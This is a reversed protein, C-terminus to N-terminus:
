GCSREPPRLLRVVAFVVLAYTLGLLVDIIYHHGLYVAAFPMAVAYVVQASKSLPGSQAFMVFMGYLPYTVHLSPLAGFPYTGRAYLAHFYGVGLLADVRVLAAPSGQASASIACGHEAVYWPPAAPIAVYTVFGLVHTGVAIRAFLRADAPRKACLFAYQAAMIVVYSGYPVACLVDLAPCHFRALWETPSLLVGGDRIGFLLLEAERLECGLVRSPHLAFPAVYRLADYLVFLIIPPLWWLHAACIARLAAAM